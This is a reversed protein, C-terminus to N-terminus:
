VGDSSSGPDRNEPAGQWLELLHMMDAENIPYKAMLATYAVIFENKDDISGIAAFEASAEESFASLKM